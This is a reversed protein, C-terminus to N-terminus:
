ERGVRYTIRSHAAAAGIQEASADTAVVADFHDALPGSAQGNGCAVDWALRRHVCSGALYAFLEPPYTPRFAAYQAALASFHDKFSAMRQPSRLMAARPMSIATM